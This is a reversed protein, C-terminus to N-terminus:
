KEPEPLRKFTYLIRDAGPKCEGARDGKLAVCFTFVDGGVAFLGPLTQSAGTDYKVVYDLAGAGGGGPDKLAYGGGTKGPPQVEGARRVTLEEGRVTWTLDVDLPTTGAEATTEQMRWTGELSVRESKPSKPVPAATALVPLLVLAFLVRPM